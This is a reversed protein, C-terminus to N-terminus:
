LIRKLILTGPVPEQVKILAPLQTITNTDGYIAQREVGSLNFRFSIPLIQQVEPIDPFFLTYNRADNCWVNLGMQTSNTRIEPIFTSVVNMRVTISHQDQPINLITDRFTNTWISFLPDTEAYSIPLFNQRVWSMNVLPEALSSAAAALSVLLFTASRKM